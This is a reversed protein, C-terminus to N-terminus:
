SNPLPAVLSVPFYRKLASLTHHLHACYKTTTALHRSVISTHIHRMNTKIATTTVTNSIHSHKNHLPRKSSPTKFGQLIVTHQITTNPIHHINHKRNTNHITSSYTSTYPFHSHKTICITYAQTKHEDQPLEWHQIRCSKCNTWTLRPYLLRGYPHPMYWLRDWSQRRNVMDQQQSHKKNNKSAQTRTSLHQLHTRQIHTKPRLYSGSSKTAM